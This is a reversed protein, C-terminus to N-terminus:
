IKVYIGRQASKIKGQTKLRNIVNWIKKDNFRTKAKIQTTNVGKKRKSILNFVAAMATSEKPKRGVAKPIVRKRTMKPKAAARKRPKASGQARVLKDLEKGIKETRRTLSKLDKGVAKLDKKLTKM